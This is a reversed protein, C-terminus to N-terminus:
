PEPGQVGDQVENLEPGIMFGAHNMAHHPAGSRRM